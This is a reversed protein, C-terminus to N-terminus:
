YDNGISHLETNLSRGNDDGTAQGSHSKSCRMGGIGDPSFAHQVRHLQTSALFGAPGGSRGSASANVAAIM